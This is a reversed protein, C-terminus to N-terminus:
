MGEEYFSRQAEVAVPLETYFGVHKRTGGVSCSVQWKSKQKCWSINKHGSTNNSRPPTNLANVSHDVLRLNELRNDFRNQNIHDVIETRSLDRKLHLSMIIRHAHLRQIKGDYHLAVQVYGQKDLSGVVSGFCRTRWSLWAQETQFHEKPRDLWYLHGTDTYGYCESLFVYPVRVYDAGRKKM